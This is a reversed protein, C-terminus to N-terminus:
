LGAPPGVDEGLRERILELMRDVVQEPDLHTSDICLADPAVILPADHRTRDRQDRADMESRVRELEAEDGRDRLEAFRRKAREGLDANLFFKVTAEPFVVSGMDRGEAVLNWTRGASRQVGILAERVEPRASFVSAAVGTAEERIAQTVEENGLFLRMTAIGPEIRLSFSKLSEQPVANGDPSVGGRLLHMAMARYLAGSDLLFFGLLKALLRAATSKGAGAPGDIAVVVTRSGRPASQGGCNATPLETM